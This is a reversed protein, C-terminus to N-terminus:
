PAPDPAKPHQPPQLPPRISARADSVTQYARFYVEEYKVSRWLREVFVDDRYSGKGDTFTQPTTPGVKLGVGRFVGRPSMEVNHKKTQLLKRATLLARVEQQCV